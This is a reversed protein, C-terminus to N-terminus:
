TGGITCYFIVSFLDFPYTGFQYCLNVRTLPIVKKGVRYKEMIFIEDFILVIM